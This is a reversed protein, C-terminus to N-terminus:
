DKFRKNYEARLDARFDPHAIEILAKARQRLSRGRMPAIGYETVVYNVDMRSTTIPAGPTINPVIKSIRTGDKKVTSSNIAIIAKGDEAMSCGRVFDVQGGCGSFQRPGIAESVVQGMLDVEIASNVGVPKYQRMITVPHNVYDVPRIEIAHNSDCFDYLKTTGMLFTVTMRGRNESKKSNNIVGKEFLALTGESIMESHIGLDKKKDLSLAVADPIGGIGLQLTSGDEILEACYAGIAKEEDGILPPGIEYLDDNAETIYDLESLHLVSEGFVHPTKDSIQAIVLGASRAAQMSCDVSAGMYCYGHADPPSLQLLIADVPVFGRRIQIPMDFFFMPTYDMRGEAFAARSNAGCFVANNLFYKEMGPLTIDPEPKNRVMHYVNLRDFREHQAVLENVLTKPEMVAHHLWLAGSRPLKSIAEAATVLKSNYLKEVSTM